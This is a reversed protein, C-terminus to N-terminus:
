ARRKGNRNPIKLIVGSVLLGVVGFAFGLLFFQALENMVRACECLPNPFVINLLQLTIFYGRSIPLLRFMQTGLNSVTRWPESLMM